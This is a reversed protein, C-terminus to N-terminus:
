CPDQKVMWAQWLGCGRNFCLLKSRMSIWDIDDQRWWLIKFSGSKGIRIIALTFGERLIDPYYRPVVTWLWTLSQSPLDQPADAEADWILIPHYAFCALLNSNNDKCCYFSFKIFFSSFFLFIQSSHWASKKTNYCSSKGFLCRM